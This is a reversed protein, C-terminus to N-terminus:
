QSLIIKKGDVTFHVDAYNLLELAQVASLTRHIEGSFYRHPMTGQYVVEVNYWRAFQTMVTQIDAHEFHFMDNHWALAQETHDGPNLAVHDAGDQKYTRAQQGPRLILQDAAATLKVSGEFLTTKIDAEDGYADINFHTGLVEVTQQECSVKFPKHPNHSVEFYARGSLKVTRDAGKFATPFTLSSAADMYVRTSDALIVVYEGGKPTTITNYAVKDNATAASMNYVVTGKGSKKINVGNEIALSDTNTQDLVIKRGDNLTLVAKNGGAQIDNKAYVHPKSNNHLFYYGASLLGLLLVAAASLRRIWLRKVVPGSDAIQMRQNIGAKIENKLFTSDEDSLLDDVGPNIDFAQYYADVFSKEETTATGKRVKKLIKLFQDRQM